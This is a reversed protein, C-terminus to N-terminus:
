PIPRHDERLWGLGASRQGPVDEGGAQAAVAVRLPAGPRRVRAGLEDVVDGLEHVLASVMRVTAAWTCNTTCITKVVDEFVTPARLMRGAGTTCWSLDGDAAVSAYFASLDEDLRFAEPVIRNCEASGISAHM